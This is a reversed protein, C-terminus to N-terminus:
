GSRMTFWFEPECQTFSQSGLMEVIRFAHIMSGAYMALLSLFVEPPYYQTMLSGLFVGVAGEGGALTGGAPGRVNLSGGRVTCGTCGGLGVGEGGLFFHHVVIELIQPFFAM